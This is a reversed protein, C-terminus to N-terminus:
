GTQVQLTWSKKPHGPCPRHARNRRDIIREHGFRPATNCPDHKGGPTASALEEKGQNRTATAPWARADAASSRGINGGRRTHRFSPELSGAPGEPTPQNNAQAGQWATRKRTGSQAANDARTPFYGSAPAHKAICKQQSQHHAERGRARDPPRRQRLASFAERSASPLVATCAPTGARPSKQFTSSHPRSLLGSTRSPPSTAWLCSRTHGRLPKIRVIVLAKVTGVGLKTLDFGALNTPAGKM